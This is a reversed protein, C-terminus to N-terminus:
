AGTYTIQVQYAGIVKGQTSLEVQFSGDIAPLEIEEFTYEPADYSSAASWREDGIALTVREVNVGEPYRVRVRYPGRRLVGVEWVGMSDRNWGHDDSRRRWDQRTLWVSPAEPAGLLIRPPEYNQPDSAGVDEFWRDYMARLQAVVEPQEAALDATEGPDAQMDYLEFAPEVPGSREGFGSPNVLKWRQTRLLANHYRQPADGRHSQIVLARDPWDVEAGRLLPLLSRGDLKRAPAAVGCADLVTPLVDVHASIRDSTVGAPLAAPWCALLPSRV